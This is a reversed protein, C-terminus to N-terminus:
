AHVKGCQGCLEPATPFPDLVHDRIEHAIEVVTPLDARGDVWAETFYTLVDSYTIGDRDVQELVRAWVADKIRVSQTPGAPYERRAIEFVEGDAYREVYHQLVTSILVGERDARAIALEWTEDTVRVSHPSM